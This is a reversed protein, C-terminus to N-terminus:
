PFRANGGFGAAIMETACALVSKPGAGQYKKMIESLRYPMYSGTGVSSFMLVSPANDTVMTLLPTDERYAIIRGCLRYGANALEVSCKVLQSNTPRNGYSNLIDSVEKPINILKRKKSYRPSNKFWYLFLPPNERFSIYTTPWPNKGQQQRLDPNDAMYDEWCDGFYQNLDLYGLSKTAAKITREWRADTWGTDRELKIIGDWPDGDPFSNGFVTMIETSLWNVDRRFQQRKKLATEREKERRQAPAMKPRSAIVNQKKLGAIVDDIANRLWVSNLKEQDTQGPISGFESSGYM